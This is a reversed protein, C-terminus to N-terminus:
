GSKLLAAFLYQFYSRNSLRTFVCEEKSLRFSATYQESHNALDLFPAMLTVAEGAITCGFSRSRVLALAWITQDLSTSLELNGLESNQGFFYEYHFM